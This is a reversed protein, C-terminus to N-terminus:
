HPEAAARRALELAGIIGIQNGYTSPVIYSELDTTTKDTSIYGENLAAFHRRIKDFLIKRKMVGGSLVIVHPSAIYTITICLQALYYAIDDWSPHDDSVTSLDAMEVGTREACARASAMSEVSLRHVNCWGPYTDGEKRLAMIHGGEPHVLGHVPQGNVVLGVGIGTGVTIYACSDANKHGGYRREALAPANVDTDFGICVNFESFAALLNFHQWGPKPTSTIYGYTDSTKDLDIPGFSAIGLSLFPELRRLFRVIEGITAHPDTTPTEILDVITTPDDAFAVAARCSTGGLEVAALLATASVSSSRLHSNDSRTPSGSRSYFYSVAAGAAFATTLKACQRM